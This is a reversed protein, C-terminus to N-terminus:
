LIIDCKRYNYRLKRSKGTLRMIAVVVELATELDLCISGPSSTADSSAVRPM